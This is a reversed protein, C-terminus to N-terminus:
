AERYVPGRQRVNDLLSLDTQQMDFGLPQPPRAELGLAAAIRPQSYYGVYTLRVLEDFFEPSDSEVARLVEDRADGDLQAFVGSGRQGAAVEIHKLGDVLLRTASPNGGGRSHRDQGQKSGAASEVFEAVGLEGPGPLGGDAPVIRDLVQTLLERQADTLINKAATM